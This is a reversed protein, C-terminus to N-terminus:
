LRFPQPELYCNIEKCNTILRLKEGKQIVFWPILHKAQQLPIEKIAGVELYEQITELALQTETQNRICPHMSLSSPLPCATTVGHRILHLVQPNGSHEQWWPLRAQLRRFFPGIQDMAQVNDTKSVPMKGVSNYTGWSPSMGPYHKGNSAAKSGSQPQGLRHEWIQLATPFSHRPWHKGLSTSM